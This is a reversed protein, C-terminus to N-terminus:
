KDRRNIIRLFSRIRHLEILDDVETRKPDTYEELTGNLYNVEIEIQKLTAAIDKKRQKNDNKIKSM